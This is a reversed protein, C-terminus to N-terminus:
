GSDGYRELYTLLRDMPVLMDYYKPNNDRNGTTPCPLIVSRHGMAAALNFFCPHRHEENVIEMMLGPAQMFMVNALGAGHVGAVHTARSFLAVQEPVTLEGPTVVTFGFTVFADAVQDGNALRRATEAGRSLFLKSPGDRGAHDEGDQARMWDAMARLLDGNQQGYQEYHPSAYLLRDVRALEDRAIKVVDKVKFYGITEEHFSELDDCVIVTADKIMDRLLFLRPLAELMWHYYNKFYTNHVVVATGSIRRVKRLFIKKYFTPANRLTMRTYDVTEPIVKGRRFAIGIPSVHAKPFELLETAGWDEDFRLYGLGARDAEYNLPPERRVRCPPLLQRVLSSSETRSDTM